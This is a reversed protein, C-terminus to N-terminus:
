PAFRAVLTTLFLTTLTTASYKIHEARAAAAAAADSRSHRATRCLSLCGRGRAGYSVRANTIAYRPNEAGPPLLLLTCGCKKQPPRM